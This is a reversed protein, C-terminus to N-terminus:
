KKINDLISGTKITGRFFLDVMAGSSGVTLALMPALFAAIIASVVGVGAAYYFGHFRPLIQKPPRRALTPNREM